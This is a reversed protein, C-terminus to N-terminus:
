SAAINYSTATPQRAGGGVTAEGQGCEWIATVADQVQSATHINNTSLLYFPRIPHRCVTFLFPVLLLLWLLCSLSSLWYESPAPCPPLPFLLLRSEWSGRSFKPHISLKEKGMLLSFNNEWLKSGIKKKTEWIVSPGRISDPSYISTGSNLLGKNITM